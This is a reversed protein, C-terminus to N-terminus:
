ITIQECNDPYHNVQRGLMTTFYKIWNAHTILCIHKHQYTQNLWTIFDRCRQQIDQETEVTVPEGEMLDCICTRQERLLPQVVISQSVLQSHQLTMQTRLLPSVIIVDYSGKILSARLCGYPTLPVDRCDLQTKDYNYATEGHRILTLRNTTNMTNM